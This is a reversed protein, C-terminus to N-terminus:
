MEEYIRELIKDIDEIEKNHTDIMNKKYDDFAQKSAFMNQMGGINEWNAKELEEITKGLNRQREELCLRIEEVEEREFEM